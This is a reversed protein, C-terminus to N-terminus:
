EQGNSNNNALRREWQVHLSEKVRDAISYVSEAFRPDDERFWATMIQVGDLTTLLARIEKNSM